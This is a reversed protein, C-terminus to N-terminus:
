RSAVVAVHAQGTAQRLEAEPLGPYARPVRKSIATLVEYSITEGWGALEDPTVALAGSGGLLVVPDGVAVGPLETVDIMCLDMCVRGVIRARRPGGGVGPLLVEARNSLRRAYGDAYGVPITAIRSPRTTVFTAGYSVPTGAPVDRLANIRTSWSLVPKLGPDPVEASPLAGYLGLGIRVLDFRAAPLRLAAATNAAHIAQPDAGLARARELCRVFTALQAETAELDREEACAFHTALGDVRISPHAACRRLFLDFPGEGVGLRTMGTDVKLHLGFRTRGAARAALAFAEVDGPDGVMPILERAVVEGHDRGFSAGMVLVRTRVGAERLQVGEEVTAVGLGWVGLGEVMRAVAIAGHGYADAKIVALIGVRSGVAQRIARLNEALQRLDVEAVTPRIPTPLATM